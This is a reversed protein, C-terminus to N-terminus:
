EKSVKIKGGCYPCNIIDTEPQDFLNTIPIGLAFALKNLNDLTPNGLLIRYLSERSLGMKKAVDTKSLSKSKLINDINIM